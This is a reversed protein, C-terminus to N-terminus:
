SVVRLGERESAIFRSFEAPEGSSGPGSHRLRRPEPNLSLSASRRGDKTGSSTSPTAVLGNETADRTPPTSASCAGPRVDPLRPELNVRVEGRSKVFNSKAQQWDELNPQSMSRFSTPSLKHPMSQSSTHGAGEEVPERALEEPPTRGRLPHSTHGPGTGDQDLHDLMVDPSRGPEALAAQYRLRGHITDDEQGSVREGTKRSTDGGGAQTRITAVGPAVISEHASVHHEADPGTNNRPCAGVSMSTAITSGTSASPSYANKHEVTEVVGPVICAASVAVAETSSKTSRNSAARPCQEPENDLPKLKPPRQPQVRQEAVHQVAEPSFSAAGVAAFKAAQESTTSIGSTAVPLGASDRALQARAYLVDVPPRVPSSPSMAVRAPVCPEPELRELGKSAKRVRTVGSGRADATTTSATGTAEFICPRLAQFMGTVVKTPSTPEDPSCSNVEDLACDQAQPLHVKGSDSLQKVIHDNVDQAVQVMAALPTDCLDHELTSLLTAIHDRSSEGTSSVGEVMLRGKGLNELGGFMNRNVRQRPSKLTRQLQVRMSNCDGELLSVLRIIEATFRDFDNRMAHLGELNNGFSAQLQKLAVESSDFSKAVSLFRNRVDDGGDFGSLMEALTQAILTAEIDKTGGFLFRVDGALKRWMEDALRAQQQKTQEVCCLVIQIVTSELIVARAARRIACAARCCKEGPTRAPGAIALYARAHHYIARTVATQPYEELASSSRRSPVVSRICSSSRRRDQRGDASPARSM